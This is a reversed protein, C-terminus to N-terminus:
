DDNNEEMDRFKQVMAAVQIAECAANIAHFMISDTFADLKSVNGIICEFMEKNSSNILNVEKELEKIEELMVAWGEHSSHFQPFQRNASELEAAVLERVQNEVANM